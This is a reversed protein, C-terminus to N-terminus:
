HGDDKEKYKDAWALIATIVYGTLIGFFYWMWDDMM